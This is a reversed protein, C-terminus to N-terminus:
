QGGEDTGRWRESGERMQVGGGRVQVWDMCQAVEEVLQPMLAQPYLTYQMMVSVVGLQALASGMPSYHWKAGSAWVGGHCFLVVPLRCSSSGAQHAAAAARRYLAGTFPPEPQACHSVPRRCRSRECPGADCPMLCDEDAASRWGEV